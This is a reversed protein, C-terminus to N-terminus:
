SFKSSNITKEHNKLYKEIKIKIQNVAEERECTNKASNYATSIEKSSLGSESEM